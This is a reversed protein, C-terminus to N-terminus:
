FITLSGAFVYLIRYGALSLKICGFGHAILPSVPNAADGSSYWFGAKLIQEDNTYWKSTVLKFMHSNGSEVFGLFFWNVMFTEYSYCVPTLVVVVGWLFCIAAFVKATPPKQGLISAFYCRIIFNCFFTMTCNSYQLGQVIGLDERLGFIPAHGIM